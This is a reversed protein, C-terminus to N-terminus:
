SIRRFSRLLKHHGDAGAVKVFDSEQTIVGHARVREVISKQIEIPLDSEDMALCNSLEQKTQAVKGGLQAELNKIYERHKLLSVPNKPDSPAEIIGLSAILAQNNSMLANEYLDKIRLEYQTPPLKEDNDGNQIDKLSGRDSQQKVRRISM